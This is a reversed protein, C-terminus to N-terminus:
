ELYDRLKDFAKNQLVKIYAYSIDMDAAIDKLKDGYYFRRVIVEREREDLSKLGKALANLMEDNCVQDEPSVYDSPMTEPIEEFDRNTRYYDILTNHTITYIWTSISSKTSDFEDLKEYVKLFVDSTLDQALVNNNVRSVIYGFVKKNYDLYIKEKQLETYM